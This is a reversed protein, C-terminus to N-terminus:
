RQSARGPRFRVSGAGWLLGHADGAGGGQGGGLGLTMELHLATVHSRTLLAIDAVFVALIVLTAAFLSGFVRPLLLSELGLHHVLRGSADPNLTTVDITLDLVGAFLPACQLVVLTFLGTYPVRFAGAPLQSPGLEVRLAAPALCACEFYTADNQPTRRYYKAMQDDDALVLVSTTANLDVERAADYSCRWSIQAGAALGIPELVVAAMKDTGEVRTSVKLADRGPAALLPLLVQLSVGLWWRGIHKRSGMMM